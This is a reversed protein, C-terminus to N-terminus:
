RRRATTGRTVLRVPVVAHASERGAIAGKLLEVAIAALRPIDQRVTTLTEGIEPLDDFGVVSIDFPVRLGADEIAAIAGVAMEDSAAFVATFDLGREIASRVARYGGLMSFDGDALLEPEIPLGADRLAQCHGGYRDGFAQNNVLGSLHLIRRHGLRILHSTAQLGGDYDDPMVWRVNDAHGLLVFPIERENLYPLRADDDHAGFLVFADTLHEPLGDSRNAVEQLLYGDASLEGILSELMLMFFPTLRRSGPAMNLGIRAARRISLTRAAADPRYDLSDIAALVARRTEPRVGPRDNLVRSVTGTSVRAAQAVDAITSRTSANSKGPGAAM